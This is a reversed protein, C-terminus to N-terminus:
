KVLVVKEIRSEGGSRLQLMYIGAALENLDVTMRHMGPAFPGSQIIDSIHRGSLDTLSLTVDGPKPLGFSITLHSNFPNPYINRIVFEDPPKQDNLDIGLANGTISVELIGEDRDNSEIQLVAEYYAEDEPVFTVFFTLSSDPPIDDWELIEVVFPGDDPIMAYYNIELIDLGINRVILEERMYTGTQVDIFEIEVPHVAINCQPFFFPGIDPITSDPDPDSEPNGADICPSDEHLYYYEPYNGELVFRPDMFVNGYRDTSDENANIRDIEGLGQLPENRDAFGRDPFFINHAIYSEDEREGGPASIFPYDEDPFYFISNEVYTENRAYVGCNIFLCHDIRGGRINYAAYLGAMAGFETFVTHSITLSTPQGTNWIGFDGRRFFSNQVEINGAAHTSIGTTCDIFSCHDVSLQAEPSGHFQIAGDYEYGYHQYTFLCYEFELRPARGYGAIGLWQNHPDWSYPLFRISDEATGHALLVANDILLSAFPFLIVAVGPEITLEEGELLTTMEQIIYPSGDLDWVGGEIESEVWTTDAFTMSTLILASLLIIIFRSM